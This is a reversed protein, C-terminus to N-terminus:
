RYLFRDVSFVMFLIWLSIVLLILKIAKEM